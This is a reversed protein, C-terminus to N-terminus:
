GTTAHNFSGHESTYYFLIMRINELGIALYGVIIELRSNQYIDVVSM